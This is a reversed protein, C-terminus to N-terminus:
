AQVAAEVSVPRERFNLSHGLQPVSCVQATAAIAPAVDTRLQPLRITEM